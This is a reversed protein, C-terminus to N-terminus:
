GQHAGVQCESCTEGFETENMCLCLRCGCSEGEDVFDEADCEGGCLPHGCLDYEEGPQRERPLETQHLYRYQVLPGDPLDERVVRYCTATIGLAKAATILSRIIEEPEEDRGGHRCLNAGSNEQCFAEATVCGKQYSNRVDIILEEPM